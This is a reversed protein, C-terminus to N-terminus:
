ASKTGLTESPLEGFLRRYRSAFRGFEWEGHRVLVDTVSVAEFDAARLARRIRHLRELQLYRKPGVGYYENFVTELTRESVGATAALDGVFLPENQGDEIARKVRRIVENRPIRPRGRSKEPEPTQQLGVIEVALRLLVRAASKAAAESEFQSCNAAVNLVQKVVVRFRRSAQHLSRTVRCGGPLALAVGDLRHTPIFVACWDHDVRTNLCFDSGPELILFASRPLVIGNASYECTDSLPSYLLVGDPRSQGDVINGSGVRGLQVDIGDLEVGCLGWVRARPNQMIMRCEVDQVSLAFADFDTFSKSRM